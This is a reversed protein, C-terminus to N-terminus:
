RQGERRARRKAATRERDAERAAHLSEAEREDRLRVSERTQHIRVAARAERDENDRIRREREAERARDAERARRLKEEFRQQEVRDLEQQLNREEKVPAPKGKPPEALAATLPLCAATLLVFVSTVTQRPLRIKMGIVTFRDQLSHM